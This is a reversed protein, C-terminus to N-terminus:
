ELDRHVINVRYSEKELRKAMNEAAAVSRHRGGTCGFAITLYSRFEARYRPMLGLLLEGARAMFPEFGEDDRVFDVIRQDLGTLPRLETVYFPNKLFRLDFVTDAGRPLGNSFGFSMVLITMRGKNEKAFLMGVQARAEQVSLGTTDLVMDAQGRLPAIINREKAIGDRIPRDAALPHRRRTASFRTALEDDSCDVFLTSLDYRKDRQFERIEDRINESNFSRTRSDIGVAVPREDGHDPNDDKTRILRALLNLPLNDIAEFGLDELAHLATSKGAGSLGTVIVIKTRSDAM